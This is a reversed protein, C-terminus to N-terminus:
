RLARVMLANSILDKFLISPLKLNRDAGSKLLELLVHKFTNKKLDTMFKM